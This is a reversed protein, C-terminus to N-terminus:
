PQWKGLRRRQSGKRPHCKSGTFAFFLPPVRDALGSRFSVFGLSSGTIAGAVAANVDAMFGNAATVVATQHAATVLRHDLSAANPPQPLYTRPKGGRWYVGTQWSVVTCASSDETTTIAGSGTGTMAIVSPLSLGGPLFLIAQAIAYSVDNGELAIFRTKYAASVIGLWTDLNAQTPTGSVTLQSWFVNAWAVGQILGAVSFRVSNDPGRRTAV